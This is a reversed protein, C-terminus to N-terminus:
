GGGQAARHEDYVAGIARARLQPRELGEMFGWSMTTARERDWGAKVLSGVEQWLQELYDLQRKLGDVDTVEGHGPIVVTEGDCLEITRRVSEAWGTCTVGGDPDFYPHMQHFLLDGAHLINRQPLRIVMDNDTHGAGFHHAEIQTDKGLTWEASGAQVTEDPAWDAAALQDIRQRVQQLDAKVAEPLSAGSLASRIQSIYRDHQQAIRAAAKAHAILAPGEAFAYNGGSHDAHHHTNIVLKLPHGRSEAERRLTSGFPANKCDVLLAPHDSAALMANGGEGGIFWVGEALERWQFHEAAGAPRGSVGPVFAAGAAAAMSLALFQRRTSTSELM